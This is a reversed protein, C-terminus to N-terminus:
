CILTQLNPELLGQRLASLLGYPRCSCAGRWEDLDLAWFAAGRLGVRRLMTAAAFMDQPRLYSAWQSRSVAYTGESSSRVEWAGSETQTCIQVFFFNIVRGPFDMIYFITNNYIKVEYYALFGPIQTYYGPTGSGSIPAGIGTSLESRLTYTRGYAPVGM